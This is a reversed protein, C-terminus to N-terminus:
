ALRDACGPRARALTRIMGLGGITRCAGCACSTSSIVSRVATSTACRGMPTSGVTVPDLWSLLVRVDGPHVGLEDALEDVTVGGGGRGRGDDEPTAASPPSLLISRTASPGSSRRTCSRPPPRTARWPNTANAPTAAGSGPTRHSNRATACSTGTAPASNVSPRRTPPRPPRLRLEALRRRHQGALAWGRDDAGLVPTATTAMSAAADADMARFAMSSGTRMCRASM